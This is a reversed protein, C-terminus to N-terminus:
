YVRNDANAEAFCIAYDDDNFEFTTIGSYPEFNIKIPTKTSCRPSMGSRRRWWNVLPYFVLPWCSVLLTLITAGATADGNRAAEKSALGVTLGGALLAALATPYIMWLRPSLRVHRVCASCFPVKIRISRIRRGTREISDIEAESDGPAGCCPCIRPWRILLGQLSISIAM